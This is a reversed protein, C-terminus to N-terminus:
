KDNGISFFEVGSIIVFNRGEDNSKINKFNDELLENDVQVRPQFNEIYTVDIGLIGRYEEIGDGVIAKLEAVLRAVENIDEKNFLNEM